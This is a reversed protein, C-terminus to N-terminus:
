ITYNTIKKVTNLTEYMHWFISTISVTSNKKLVLYPRFIKQSSFLAKYEGHQASVRGSGRCQQEEGIRWRSRSTANVGSGHWRGPVAEHDRGRGGAAGAPIIM